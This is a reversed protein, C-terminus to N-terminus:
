KCLILAANRSTAIAEEIRQSIPCLYVIYTQITKASPEVGSCLVLGRQSSLQYEVVGLDFVVCKDM